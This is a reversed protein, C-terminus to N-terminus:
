DIDGITLENGLVDTDAVYGPWTVSISQGLNVIQWGHM